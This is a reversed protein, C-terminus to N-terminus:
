ALANRLAAVIFPSGMVLSVAAVVFALGAWLWHVDDVPPGYDNDEKQGPWLLLALGLVGNVVPVLLLVWWWGSRNLDHLRLVAVRVSLFVSVLVWVGLAGWVVPTPRILGLAVIAVLVMGSTLAALINVTFYRLRGLRGDPSLSFLPPINNYDDYATEDGDLRAQEQALRHENRARLEELRAQRRVEAEAQRTALTRPMDCVCARCIVRKSQREGCNPCTIEEPSIAVAPAPSSRSAAAPLRSTAAPSLPPPPPAAPLESDPVLSLMLSTDPPPPPTRRAPAPASPVKAVPQPQPSAAALAKPTALRPGDPATPAQAPVAHLVAGVAWFRQVWDAADAPSLDRKIVVRQGSFLKELKQEDLRLRRGLKERVQAQTYGALIEGAFVLHVVTSSM